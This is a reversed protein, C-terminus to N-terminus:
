IAKQYSGVTATNAAGNTVVLTARWKAYPFHDISIAFDLTEDAAQIPASIPSVGQDDTFIKTVDVWQFANYAWVQFTITDAAGATLRGSFSLSKYGLQSVGDADPYNYTAAALPGTPENIL